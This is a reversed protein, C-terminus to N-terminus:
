SGAPPNQQYGNASIIQNPPMVILLIIYVLIGHGAFIAMLIFILRVITSDIDFYEGLGGCVGGLMKDTSSRMLKKTSM